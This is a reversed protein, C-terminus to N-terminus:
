DEQNDRTRSNSGPTADKRRLINRVWMKLIVVTEEPASKNMIGKLMLATNKLARDKYAAQGRKRREIVRNLRRLEEKQHLYKVEFSRADVYSGTATRVSRGKLPM